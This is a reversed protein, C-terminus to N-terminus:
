KLKPKTKKLTKDAEGNICVERSHTAKTKKIQKPPMSKDSDFFTVFFELAFLVHIHAM